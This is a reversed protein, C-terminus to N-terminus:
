TTVAPSVGAAWLVIPTALVFELDSAPQHGVWDRVPFGVMGGMTLIVLQVAAAASIWMRRTFDTLEHSPEDSPLIPELAMGCITCAGPADRIFEPHMPTYQVNGPAAKTHRAARGSAYFWPDIKVKTQCKESCFHFSEGQFETHRTDPGTTATM